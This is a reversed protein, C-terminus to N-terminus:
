ASSGAGDSGDHLRDLLGIAEDLNSYTLRYIGCREVVGTLLEFGTQLMSSYNVANDTLLQFGEARDLAVVRAPAGAVYCPAVVWRPIAGEQFRAVAEVPAKMYAIDGKPTGSYVRSITARPEFAAIVGIANNKLSVPRPNPRMSGDAFSFIAMEDSLLRWGRWSLAASLTSKGSGTDAPMLMALGDRELVAAHLFMPAVDSMAVSWNMATEFTTFARHLPVPGFTIEGNVEAKAKATIFRGILSHASVRVGADDIGAPDEFPYHEYMEAFDDVFRSLSARVHITFAGTVLHVGDSRLRRALAERPIDGILM